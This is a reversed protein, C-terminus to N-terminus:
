SSVSAGIHFEQSLFGGQSYVRDKDSLGRYFRDSTFEIFASSSTIQRQLRHCLTLLLLSFSSNDYFHAIKTKVLNHM